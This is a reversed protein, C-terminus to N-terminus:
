CFLQSALEVQGVRLLDERKKARPCGRCEKLIGEGFLRELARWFAPGNVKVGRGSVACFSRLLLCRAHGFLILRHAGVV